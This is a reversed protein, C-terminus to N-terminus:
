QPPEVAEEQNVVTGDLFTVKVDGKDEVEWVPAGDLAAAHNYIPSIDRGGELEQYVPSPELDMM